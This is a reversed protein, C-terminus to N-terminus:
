NRNSNYAAGMAAWTAARMRDAGINHSQRSLQQYSSQSMEILADRGEETAMAMIVQNSSILQTGFGIAGDMTMGGNSSAAIGMNSLMEATPGCTPELTLGDPRDLGQPAYASLLGPQFPIRHHLFTEPNVVLYTEADRPIAGSSLPAGKSGFGSGIAWVKGISEGATQVVDARLAVMLHLHIAGPSGADGMTALQDGVAVSDGQRVKVSDNHLYAYRMLGDSTQVTVGNVSGVGANVVSGALGAVM